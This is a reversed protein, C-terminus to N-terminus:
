SRMSRGDPLKIAEAYMAPAGSKAPRGAVTIIDGPKVTDATWGLMKLGRMSMLELAWLKTKGDADTVEVYIFSHPNTFELRRVVGTISVAGDANTYLAQSHHAALRAGDLILLVLLLAAVYVRPRIKM